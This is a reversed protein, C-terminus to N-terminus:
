KKLNGGFRRLVGTAKWSTSSKLESIENSYRKNEKKLQSIKQKYEKKEAKRKQKLEAYDNKLDYLRVALEFERYTDSDLAANFIELSREFCRAFVDEKELEAKRKSFEDRIKIYFESKNVEDSKKFRHFIDHCQRNFIQVCFEDYKGIEKFFEYIMDYITICDSYNKFYSNTVSDPRIRRYYYYEDHFYIREAEFFTKIFFMNDEFILGEPFKINEILSRKFLKSTISVSIDFVNDKVTKWSFIDDGVIDKLFKMDFYESYSEKRTKYNFNIIKFMLMDLSKEEAINYLEELANEKLYDDSDLFLAYEGKAIELAINRSAGSGKNEKQSLVTIREDRSEYERLIDLSGDTSGDDICIVEFDRLSQNLVSDICERLYDQTNYAPIIVSVKL